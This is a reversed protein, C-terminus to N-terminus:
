REPAIEELTRGSTEPLLTVLAPALLVLAALLSVATWSSGLAQFLIGHLVLSLSGTVTAVMAM